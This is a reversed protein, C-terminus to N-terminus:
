VTMDDNIREETKKYSLGTSHLLKWLCFRARSFVGDIKILQVVLQKEVSPTQIYKLGQLPTISIMYGKTKKQNGKFFFVVFEWKELNNKAENREWM